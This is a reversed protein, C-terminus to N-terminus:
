SNPTKKQLSAGTTVKTLDLNTKKLARGITDKSVPVELEVKAKDELLRLSWRAYGQPVPGCAMEILKAEARGDLKRRSNDSNVNRDMTLVKEIGGDVYYKIVNYVTSLCVGTSKACQQQTFQKGHAEDLDILIQCRCKITRNTSKKRIVSKLTLLEDDTLSIIYKKKRAMIIVATEKM